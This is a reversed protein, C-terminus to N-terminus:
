VVVSEILNTNDETNELIEYTLLKGTKIAISEDGEKYQKLMEELKNTLEKNFIIENVEIEAHQEIDGGEEFTIVPIGKDTVFEAIEEPLNHKRAHLAGEPIVNVKGGNEFKDVDEEVKSKKIKHNVSNKINTLILKSGNKAMIANYNFGGNLKNQNSIALQNSYDLSANKVKNQQDVVQKGAAYFGQNISKNANAQNAKNGQTWRYQKGQTSFDSYSATGLNGNFSKVEKGLSKDAINLVNLALAGGIAWPNKSAMAVDTALSLGSDIADDEAMKVGGAKLLGGGIQVAQTAIGLGNDIKASNNPKNKYASGKQENPNKYTTFGTLPDIHKIPDLLGKPTKLELPSNIGQIKGFISSAGDQLSPMEPIKLSYSPKFLSKSISKNLNSNFNSTFDNIDKDFMNLSYDKNLNPNFSTSQIGSGWPSQYKKILKKM